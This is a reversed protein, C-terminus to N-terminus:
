SVTFLAVALLVPVLANIGWFIRWWGLSPAKSLCTGVLVVVSMLFVPLGLKSLFCALEFDAQAAGAGEGALSYGAFVILWINVGAVAISPVFKLASEM